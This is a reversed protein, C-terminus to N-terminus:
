KMLLEKIFQPIKKPRMSVCDICVIQVEIKTLEKEDKTCIQRMKLSSNGIEVVEASVEILDDIKASLCYEIECKRVVFFLEEKLKLESQVLGLNRLFDTRAREAFKLYNAYYVVGQSDTDEWYIRYKASFKSMVFVIQLKM